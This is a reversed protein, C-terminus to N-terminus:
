SRSVLVAALRIQIQEALLKAVKIEANRAARLDAFRQPGRDYSASATAKGSAIPAGEGLPKLSFQVTASLIAANALGTQSNVVATGLNETIATLELTYKKPRPQGGDLDFVLEQRLYHGIREQGLRDVTPAVDIAALVDKLNGGGPAEAYLPRFCGALGLGALVALAIRVGWGEPSSM